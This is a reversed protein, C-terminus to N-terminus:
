KGGGQPSQMGALRQALTASSLEGVRQDVLAGQADFFLTTPLGASGTARPLEGGPDRVVNSLQLGEAQLYQRITAASEGQNVFVFAVDPHAAQARMLAPMERRCPPCWSAWLNVVAPRGAFSTLPVPRGDLDVLTMAPLRQSPAAVSALATALVWLAAGSGVGATIARRQAANRLALAAGIALAAVLGALPEFGGDRIDILRWPEAAYHSWYALAFAARGAVIAGAITWWLASEVSVGHRRALRNGVATGLLIAIFLTLLPASFSIPGLNITMLEQRRRQAGADILNPSRPRTRYAAM